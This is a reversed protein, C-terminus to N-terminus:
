VNLFTNSNGFTNGLQLTTENLVLIRHSLREVCGTYSETAYFDRLVKLM